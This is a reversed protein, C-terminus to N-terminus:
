RSRSMGAEELESRPSLWGARGAIRIADIRNRAGTKRMARSLYNRVTGVSLYLESAIEAARSGEAVLRLVDAERPTLPNGPSNLASYALDPDIAKRGSAVRRVAETIRAPDADKLVFGDARAAIAERLEWSSGGADAMVVSGCAPVAARVARVTGFRDHAAIGVDLLVVDPQLAAAAQGVPQPRDLEAVVEMDPERGLLASLGVRVLTNREAIITRIM